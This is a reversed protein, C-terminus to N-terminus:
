FQNLYERIVTEHLERIIALLNAFGESCSVILQVHASGVVGTLDRYLEDLFEVPLLLCGIKLNGVVKM